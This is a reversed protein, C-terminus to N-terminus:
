WSVSFIMRKVLRNKKQLTHHFGHGADMDHEIALRVLNLKGCTASAHDDNAVRFQGEAFQRSCVFGGVWIDKGIASDGVWQQQLGTLLFNRAAGRLLLSPLFPRFCALTKVIAGLAPCFAFGQVMSQFRIPFQFQACNFFQPFLSRLVALLNGVEHELDFSEPFQFIM